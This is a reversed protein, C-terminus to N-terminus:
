GGPEDSRPATRAQIRRVAQGALASVQGRTDRVLDRLPPLSSQDGVIGLIEALGELVNVDGSATFAHLDPLESPQFETLYERAQANTRGSALGGVVETLHEKRGMRYLAFDQTVRVRPDKEALRDAAMRTVEDGGAQRALRALGAYAALRLDADTASRLHEFTPKADPSGIFALADLLYRAATRDIERAPLALEKDLLRTLEPVAPTFRLRGITYVIEHRVRPANITILPVLDGGPAPDGIKRLARAAEFRATDSRDDRLVQVLGPVATLARLIGLSRAAKARMGEDPDALRATVADVVTPDIALDPEVVVEAWEDSWPNFFNAVRNLTVVVGSEQPLYLGTLGEVAKDRIDRELDSSLTVLGPMARVDAVQQLSVVLARRVALDPDAALAVLNPTARQIRNAGLQVVAERRRAADPNGLDYILSDIPVERTTTQASAPQAVPLLAILGVVAGLVVFPSAKDRM